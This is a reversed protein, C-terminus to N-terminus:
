ATNQKTCDPLVAAKVSINIWVPHRNILTSTISSRCDKLDQRFADDKIMVDKQEMTLNDGGEAM